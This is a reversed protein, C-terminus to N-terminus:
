SSVSDSYRTMFFFVQYSAQTLGSSCYSAMPVQGGWRGGTPHPWDELPTHPLSALPSPPTPLCWSSAMAAWAAAMMLSFLFLHSAPIRM